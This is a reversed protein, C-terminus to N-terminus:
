FQDNHSLDLSTLSLLHSFQRPLFGTLLNGSLNLVKLSKLRYFLNEPLLNINCNRLSLKQLDQWSADFFAFSPLRTLNNNDLILIQVPKKSQAIFPIRTLNAANCLLSYQGGAPNSCHCAPPCSTLLCPLFLLVSLLYLFM